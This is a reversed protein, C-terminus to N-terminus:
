DAYPLREAVIELAHRPTVGTHHAIQERCSFGCVAIEAEDRARVAPFLRQEGIQRAVDYHAAEHGFSGAMGCCGSNIESAGVGPTANLLKLTSATGVLAKQHCHGHLLVPAPRADEAFDIAGPAEALLSDVTRVRLALARAAATRVFHSYEDLLTLICSPESGVIWAGRRVYPELIEVNRRAQRAARELLGKSIAPRGCCELQPAVVEYGASELLRVASIGVSPWYHNTWTDAFYLVLGRDGRRRPVYSDFWKRFTQEAFPPPAIRRDLGYRRELLSRVIPAALLANAASPFLSGLRALAPAAALFLASRSAGRRDNRYALWESKLRAMDVGTPCESKCAKCLLCLDMVEDLAPDALGDLLRGDTLAARLAVARARTTHREDLTAMYSPCMTGVLKQRCAGVGSCMNALGAPDGHPGYDFHTAVTLPRSAAYRLRQDMPLPDAIKRPNLLNQPDFARKIERFAAVIRPGYMRELFESRVIGDGHEGTMAGGYRAVLEATKEAISRLRQVDRPQKLNLTPRVHLVGVSAHAYYGIEDVGEERLMRDLDAIYDRLRSPDVAADEIFEYPHRDGPQSMLLGFGKNRLTWAALQASPDFLARVPQGVGAAKLESELESVRYALRAEYEDYLECMLVAPPCGELFSCAAIGAQSIGARLILQDVLEVAAPRHALLRPTAAVADLVSAFHLMLLARHAPVPVLRLRAAVVLALTGESGIIITAPNVGGSLCLRDLAYGGNRRLVRPYRELVESRIDTRIRDLERLLPSDQEDRRITEPLPATRARHTQIIPQQPGPIGPIQPLDDFSEHQWTHVSGDALVVTLEAIYDVTRGYYVSHAGCSNNGIMGGITARSATAVDPPFWLRHALCAANLDDLVVGPQVEVEAREPDIAGIRHMYRSFDLQVGWGVAGGAIGTGAGRAVIPVNHKACIRVTSVVDDADRPLVVGAPAIEYLSADTSYITRSLRDFRVDGRIGDQLEAEVARIQESTPQSPPRLMATM